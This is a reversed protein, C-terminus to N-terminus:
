SFVAVMIIDTGGGPGPSGGNLAYSASLAYSSSISPSGPAYSASITTLAHSSTIGLYSGSSIDAPVLKRYAVAGNAGAPGCLVMNGQQDAMYFDVSISRSDAFNILGYYAILTNMSRFRLNQQRGLHDWAASYVGVSGTEAMSATLAYSSSVSPAGNPAWSASVSFLSDLAYDSTTTHETYSASVSWSATIPYTSGTALGTGSGGGNLAHSATLAYSASGLLSGTANLNSIYVRSAVLQISSTPTFTSGLYMPFYNDVGAIRISGSIYSSTVNESQAAWSSSVSWSATIPYTSGTQLGTGNSPAWSASIAHSATIPYTSGTQLGTGNTPAWSASVAFSSSIAHSATIPYTSGTQLSAGATSPAWSASRCFAADLAFDATEAHDADSATGWITKWRRTLTGLDFHDDVYPVVSSSIAYFRRDYSVVPATLDGASQTLPNSGTPQTIQDFPYAV